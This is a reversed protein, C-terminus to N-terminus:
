QGRNRQLEKEVIQRALDDVPTEDDGSLNRLYADDASTPKIGDIFAALVRLGVMLAETKQTGVSM